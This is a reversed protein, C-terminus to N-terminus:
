TDQGNVCKIPMCCFNANLVKLAKMMFIVMSCHGATKFLRKLIGLWLSNVAEALKNQSLFGKKQNQVSDLSNTFSIVTISPFHVTKYVVPNDQGM